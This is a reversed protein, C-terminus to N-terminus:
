MKFGQKKIGTVFRLMIKREENKPKEQTTRKKKQHYAFRLYHLIKAM